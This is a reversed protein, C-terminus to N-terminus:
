AELHDHSIMFRCGRPIIRGTDHVDKSCRVSMRLKFLELNANPPGHGDIDQKRGIALFHQAATSHHGVVLEAM